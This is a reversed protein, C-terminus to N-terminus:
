LSCVLGSVIQPNNGVCQGLVSVWFLSTRTGEWHQEHGTECDGRAATDSTQSVGCFCNKREQAKLLDEAPKLSHRCNQHQPTHDTVARCDCGLVEELSLAWWIGGEAKDEALLSGAKRTGEWVAAEEIGLNHQDGEEGNGRVRMDKLHLFESWAGSESCPLVLFTVPFPSKTMVAVDKRILELM